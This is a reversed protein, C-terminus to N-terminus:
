SQWKKAPGAQAVRKVERLRLQRMQSIPITISCTHTQAPAQDLAPM